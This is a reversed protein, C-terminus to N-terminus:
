LFVVMIGLQLLNKSADPGTASCCFSNCLTGRATIVLLPHLGYTSLAPDCATSKLCSGRCMAKTYTWGVVEYLTRRRLRLINRLRRSTLNHTITRVTDMRCMDMHGYLKCGVYLRGWPERWM